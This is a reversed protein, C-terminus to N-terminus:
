RPSRTPSSGGYSGRRACRSGRNLRATFGRRENTDSRGGTASGSGCSRCTRAAAREPIRVLIRLGERRLAFIVFNACDAGLNTEPGTSAADALEGSGFLYPLGFQESIAARFGSGIFRRLELIPTQRIKGDVIARARLRLSGCHLRPEFYGDIKAIPLTPESHSVRCKMGFRDRRRTPLLVWGPARVFRDRQLARIESDGCVVRDAGAKGDM